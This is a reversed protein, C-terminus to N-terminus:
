RFSHAAFRQAPRLIHELEKLRPQALDRIAADDALVRRILDMCLQREQDTVPPAPHKRLSDILQSCAQEGTRVADWDGNQAALLMARSLEAFRSYRVVPSEDLKRELPASQAPISATALAAPM